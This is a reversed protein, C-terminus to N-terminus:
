ASLCWRRELIFAFWARSAWENEVIGELWEGAKWNERQRQAGTSIGSCTSIMGSSLTRWM